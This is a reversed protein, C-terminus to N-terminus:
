AYPYYSFFHDFSLLEFVFFTLGIKKQVHFVTTVEYVISYRKMLINWM